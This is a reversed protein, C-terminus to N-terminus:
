PKGDKLAHVLAQQFSDFYDEFVLKADKYRVAAWQEVGVVSFDAKAVVWDGMEVYLGDAEAMKALIEEATM